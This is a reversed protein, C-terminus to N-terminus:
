HNRRYLGEIIGGISRYHNGRYLGAIIGGISRCLLASLASTRLLWAQLSQEPFGVLVQQLCGFEHIGDFQLDSSLGPVCSFFHFPASSNIRMAFDVNRRWNLTSESSAKVDFFM